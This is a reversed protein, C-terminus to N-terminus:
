DGDNDVYTITISMASTMDVKLLRVVKQMENYVDTMAQNNTQIQEYLNPGLLDLKANVTLFQANVIESLTSGSAPDKAGLTNLYSKLSPGDAGTIVSKGNFLDISAQHAVKALTQNLDKIYFAEVKEPFVVGGVMAGSPIGIKGSRIYREYNLVYGNVLLSTSGAMDMSTKSIFTNRYPGTWAAYVPNFKNNMQNILLQVYALRKAADAATTYYSLIEADTTGLGNLLYDFAPFGQRAYSAPVELNPSGNAINDNIGTESTPYINFFSHLAQDYAPGVDFLEVKQWETYAEIWAQRFGTLTTLTPDATFKGSMSTMSDLKVKFNKYGPIIIEDAIHKLMVERDSIEEDAEPDDKKSACGGALLLVSLYLIFTKVLDNFQM